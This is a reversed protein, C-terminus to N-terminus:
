VGVCNYREFSDCTSLKRSQTRLKRLLLSPLSNIASSLVLASKAVSYKRSSKQYNGGTFWLTRDKRRRHKWMGLASLLCCGTTISEGPLFCKESFCSNEFMRGKFAQNEYAFVNKCNWTFSISFLCFKSVLALFIKAILEVKSIMFSYIYICRFFAESIQSFRSLHLIWDRASFLKRPNHNIEFKVNM